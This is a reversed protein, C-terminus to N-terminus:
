QPKNKDIWVEYKVKAVVARCLENKVYSIINKYIQYKAHNWGPGKQDLALDAEGPKAEQAGHLLRWPNRVQAWREVGAQLQRLWVAEPLQRVTCGVRASEAFIHGTKTVIIFELIIQFSSTELLKYLLITIRFSKKQNQIDKLFASIIHM